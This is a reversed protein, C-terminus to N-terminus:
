KMILQFSKVFQIFTSEELFEKKGEMALLYLKNGVMVAQGRFYSQGNQVLFNMAPNGNIQVFNSFVLANEPHHNIIGQLLGEIGAIEHGKLLETPYTAVLLLFVGKTEFPSLYVDYLLKQGEPLDLAQSLIQPPTPFSIFCDGGKAYVQKWAPGTDAHVSSRFFFHAMFLSAALIWIGVKKTTRTKM